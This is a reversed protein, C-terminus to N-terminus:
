VTGDKPHFETKVGLAELERRFERIAAEVVGGMLPVDNGRLIAERLEALSRSQAEPYKRVARLVTVTPAFGASLAVLTGRLAPTQFAQIESGFETQGRWWETDISVDFCYTARPSPTATIDPKHTM